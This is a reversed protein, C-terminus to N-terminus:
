WHVLHGTKGRFIVLRWRNTTSPTLLVFLAFSKRPSYGSASVLDGSAGHAIPKLMLGRRASPLM